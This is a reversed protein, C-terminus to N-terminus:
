DQNHLRRLGERVREVDEPTPAVLELIAGQVTPNHRILNALVQAHSNNPDSVDSENTSKFNFM